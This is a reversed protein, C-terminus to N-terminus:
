GAREKKEKGGPGGARGGAWRRATARPDSPRAAGGRESGGRAWVDAGEDEVARHNKPESPGRAEVKEAGHSRTRGVELRKRTRSACSGAAMYVGGRARTEKGVRVGLARERFGGGGERDATSGDRSCETSSVLAVPLKAADVPARKVRGRAAGVV